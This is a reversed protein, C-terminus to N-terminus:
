FNLRVLPLPELDHTGLPPLHRGDTGLNLFADAESREIPSISNQTHIKRRDIAPRVLESRATVGVCKPVLIAEKLCFM